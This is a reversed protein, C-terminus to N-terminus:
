RTITFRATGIDGGKAERVRLVYAGAALDQVDLTRSSTGNLSGTSRQVLTGEVTLIEFLLTSTIAANLRVAIRDNAPNPSVTLATQDADTEQVGSVVNGKAFAYHGRRLTDIRMFGNGDTLSGLTLTVDPCLTWPAEANARYVLIADAESDGYLDFDLENEGGDYILRGNLQTGAPWLGDVTWYHTNSV